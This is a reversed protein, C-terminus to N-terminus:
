SRLGTKFRRRFLVAAVAMLGASVVLLQVSTSLWGLNTQLTKTFWSTPLWPTIHERLFAPLQQAPFACGGALGLVMGVINNLVNARREDPVLAVCVTMLCAAFCAYSLVVGALGLPQPWHIRFVLAGGGLMVAASFLLLVVTFLVKGALFPFLRQHLTHYREFTHLRV